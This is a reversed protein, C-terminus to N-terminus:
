CARENTGAVSFISAGVAYSEPLAFGPELETGCALLKPLLHTHPGGRDSRVIPGFVGIFNLTGNDRQLSKKARRKDVVQEEGPQKAEQITAM